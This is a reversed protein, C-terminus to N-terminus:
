RWPECSVTNTLQFSLAKLGRGVQGDLFGGHFSITGAAKNHIYRGAAKKDGNLYTGNTQLHFGMGAMLRGGTGYCAWEGTHLEPVPAAAPNGSPAPAGPLTALPVASVGASPNKTCIKDTVTMRGDVSWEGNSGPALNFIWNEMKGICTEGYYQNRPYGPGYDRVIATVAFPYLAGKKPAPKVSQYLVQRETTGDPTLSLLTKTLVQKLVDSTPAQAQCALFTTALLALFRM